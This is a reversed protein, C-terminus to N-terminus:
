CVASGGYPLVIKFYYKCFRSKSVHYLFSQLLHVINLYSASLPGNEGIEVFESFSPM